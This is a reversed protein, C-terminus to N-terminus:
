KKALDASRIEEVKSGWCKSSAKWPTTGEKKYLWKAYAMNGEITLIDFGLKKAQELHYKENIQMVGVDKQNVRGRVIDGDSDYHTFQSECKAIEILEPTDSFYQKLYNELTLDKAAEIVQATNSSALAKSQNLTLDKAVAQGTSGGYISSLFFVLSTTLEIM